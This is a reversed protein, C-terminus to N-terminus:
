GSQELLLAHGDPDQILSVRAGDALIIASDCSDLADTAFVLRSASIASPYAIPSARGRPTRYGLLEVHPAPSKAALSVVDVAVDDLDDLADQSPGGNVQRSQVSLGLRASYFAISRDPDAVSIASHDIGAETRPDARPFEILELPHGDPDRFKFAIIGGLLAQPGERSIPTFPFRCLRGYAAEIDDTVLACHQFWLDNSRSDAPYSAGPPDFMALELQQRGRRMLTMSLKRAGLLDALRPDADVAPTAEFGLADAYFTRAAALDAVNLSVRDLRLATVAM